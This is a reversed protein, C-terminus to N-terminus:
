ARRTRRSWLLAGGGLLLLLAGIPGTTDLTGGTRPLTGGEAPQGGGTAAPLGTPDTPAVPHVPDVPNEPDVPGVPDVPNEPDVPGVPPVAAARVSITLIQESVDSAATTVMTPATVFMARMSPAPLAPLLARVTVQYDGAAVSGLVIGAITATGDGNDTFSLGAPLRGLLAYAPLPYGTGSVTFAGPVGIEFAASPASTIIPAEVVVLTLAQTADGAANTARLTVTATEAHRPTGVITATGDGNDTLNLGAPLGTATIVADPYGTTTVLATGPEGLRVRASPASTFAPLQRVTLAFDVTATGASSSAMVPLIWEGHETAAGTITATGDGNDTFTLGAPVAGRIELVPVPYGSAAIEIEGIVGETFPALAATTIAPRETITIALAQTVTASTNAATLTAVRMGSSIPVGSITATGDGNDTLTLGAPLGTAIIAADPYGTTTVTFTDAEGLRLTASPASTFAPSSTVTITLTGSADGIRNTATLQVTAVGSATPTGSITATGDGNDTLTLGAPLGTAIIAADPYGATTVTFAGNGGRSFAADSASTFAPLATAEISWTDSTSGARNTATITITTAGTATLTGLVTATGDGNDTFTLGPALGEATLAPAPSGSATFTQDIDTGVADELPAPVSLGPREDVIVTVDHTVLSGLVAATFSLAYTGATTPVGTITMTDDVATLSLGPVDGTVGWTLAPHGVATFAADADDGKVLTLQAPGTILPAVFPTIVISADAAGADNTATLQVTAAMPTGTPEAVLAWAGGPTGTLRVWDPLESATVTPEPMGTVHIPITVSDGVEVLQSGAVSITPASQVEFTVDRTTTAMDNEATLSLSIPASAATPTGAIALSGDPQATATLGAPLSGATLSVTPRPWGVATIVASFAVDTHAVFAAASTFRPSETVVLTLNQTVPDGLAPTLTIDSAFEGGATPTGHITLRDANQTVQLGDPLNEPLSVETQEPAEWTVDFSVPSGAAFTARDPSTFAVNQVTVPVSETTSGLSNVATVQMTTAGPTTPTGTLTGAPSVSLGAPVGTATYTATPAGPTGLTATATTGTLLTIPTTSIVPLSGQRVSVPASTAAISQQDWTDRVAGPAVALEVTPTGTIAATVLYTAGLSTIGTLGGTGAGSVNLALDGVTLPDTLIPPSGSSLFQVQYTLTTTGLTWVAGEHTPTQLTIAPTPAAPQVGGTPTTRIEDVVVTTSNAEDHSKPYGFAVTVGTVRTFDVQPKFCATQASTCAFNLVLDFAGVNGIGTNYVGTNNSADTVSISVSVATEWEPAAPGRSVSHLGVMFQTNTGDSTLDTVPFTYELNAWPASNGEGSLGISATGNSQSFTPAASTGSNYVTFARSGLVNGAFDDFVIPAAAAAPLPVLVASATVALVTVVRAIRSRVSPHSSRAPATM